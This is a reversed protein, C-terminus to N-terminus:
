WMKFAKFVGTPYVIIFPILADWLSQFANLILAYAAIYEMTLFPYAVSGYILNIPIMLALRLLFALFMLTVYLKPRSLTEGGVKNKQLHVGLWPILLMPLTATLKFIPGVLTPDYLFLGMTGSIVSILGVWVGGLLFSV